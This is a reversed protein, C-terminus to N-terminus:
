SISCASASRDRSAFQNTSRREPQSGDCQYAEAGLRGESVAITVEQDRIDQAPLYAQAVFFGRSRYHKTIRAAMAQLDALSLESGPTFGTLAM